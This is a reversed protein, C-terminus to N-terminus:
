GPWTAGMARSCSTSSSRAAPSWIRRRAPSACTRSPRCRMKLIVTDSLNPEVILIEPARHPDLARDDARGHRLAVRLRRAHAAGRDRGNHSRVHTRVQDDRRGGQRPCGLTPRPPPAQHSAQATSARVPLDPIRLIRPMSRLFPARSAAGHSRSTEGTECVWRRRAPRQSARRDHTAALPRNAGQASAGLPPPCCRLRRVVVVPTPDPDPDPLAPVEPKPPAPFAIMVPVPPATRCPPRAAGSARRDDERWRRSGVPAESGAREAVRQAVQQLTGHRDALM